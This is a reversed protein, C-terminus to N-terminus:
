DAIDLLAAFFSEPVSAREGYGVDYLWFISPAKVTVFKKQAASLPWGLSEMERLTDCLTRTADICLKPLGEYTKQDRDGDFDFILRDGDFPLNPCSSRARVEITLTLRRGVVFFPIIFLQTTLM